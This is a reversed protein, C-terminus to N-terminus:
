LQINPLLMMLTIGSVISAVLRGRKEGLREVAIDRVIQAGDTIFLPAANIAALGINVLAALISVTWLTYATGASMGLGLLTRPIESLYVGVHEYRERDRVNPPAAPKVVLIRAGSPKVFEVELTVNALTGGNSARLRSVYEIFSSVKDFKTGNVIIAQFVDGSKIGAKEAFSGPSVQLIVIYTGGHQLGANVGAILAFILVNALIGAAYVRLRSRLPARTLEEEDPEVFAAPLIGLAILFGASKVRIGEYRAALAHSLEHLIIAVSLGPLLYLFTKLGITVGPILPVVPAAGQPRGAFMGAIRSVMVRYFEITLAFVALVGADFLLGLWRYRRLREFPSFGSPIRLMIMLPTVTLRSGEGLVRSLVLTAALWAALYYLLLEGAATM